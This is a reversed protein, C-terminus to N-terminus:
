KRHAAKAELSVEQLAMKLQTLTAALEADAKARSELIQILRETQAKHATNIDMWAYALFATSIIIGGFHHVLWVFLSPLTKPTDASLSMPSLAETTM